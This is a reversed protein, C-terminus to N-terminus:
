KRTKTKAALAANFEEGAREARERRDENTLQKKSLKRKNREVVTPFRTVCSEVFEGLSQSSWDHYLQYFEPSHTHSGQDSTDHCMEHILLCGYNGWAALDCGTAAIYDRNIAIYLEGDTWGDACDSIGIKLTRSCFRREDAADRLERQGYIYGMLHHFSGRLTDLVLEEEPKWDAQDVLDCRANLEGGLQAFDAIEVHAAWHEDVNDRLIKFLAELSEVGFRELTQESFVFALKHQMLRDGRRDGAPAWTATRGFSYFHLQQMSWHRGTVDTLLKLKQAQKHNLEGAILQDIMRQRGSDNLAPQRDIKNAAKQDVLKKVRRWVPCDSMVENRAFNVKLQKRSVVEGGCGYVHGPHSCVLVGLNYVYLNGNDKLRIYADDTSQEWKVTEVDVTIVEGNLMVRAPMYKVSVRLERDLQALDTPLLREYLSVTVHCGEACTAPDHEEILEYDLGKGQIDVKMTFPGTHWVNHGFAFLQGRGMRFQGYTKKEQEEPPQGFTEWYKEIVARDTMGTGNDGIMVAHPTITIEIETAQADVANMIGELIAKHLTGAQRKIVDFLLQPHMGFRRTEKAM